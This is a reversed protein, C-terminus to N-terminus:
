FYLLTGAGGGELPSLQRMVDGENAFLARTDVRGAATFFMLAGGIAFVMAMLRQRPPAQEQVLSSMVERNVLATDLGLEDLLETIVGVIIWVLVIFLGAVLFEASFFTEVFSIQWQPIENLLSEVGHSLTVILKLIVLNVIWQSSTRVVWERSFVAQKKILRHSFFREIAMFFGVIPLYLGNWEPFLQHGFQAVTLGVAAMMLSVLVASIFRHTRENFRSGEVYKAYKEMM